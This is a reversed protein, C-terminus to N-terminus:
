QFDDPDLGSDSDEEPSEGGGEGDSSGSEEESDSDSEEGVEREFVGGRRGEKELISDFYRLVSADEERLRREKEEEGEGEVERSQVVEEMAEVFRSRADGESRERCVFAPGPSSSFPTGSHAFIM